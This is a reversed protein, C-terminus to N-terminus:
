RRSKLFAIYDDIIERDFACFGRLAGVSEESLGTFACAAQTTAETTKVDSRGLLYDTSVQFHDAIKVLTDYGPESIGHIYQSITQRTKGIINSLEAQTTVPDNGMLETLRRPFPLNERERANGKSADNM